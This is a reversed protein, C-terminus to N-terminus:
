SGGYRSPDVPFAPEPYDNFQRDGDLFRRMRAVQSSLYMVIIQMEVPLQLALIEECTRLAQTRTSVFMQGQFGLDKLHDIMEGFESCWGLVGLQGYQKFRSYLVNPAVRLAYEFSENQMIVQPPPEYHRAPTAPMSPTQPPPRPPANQFWQHGEYNAEGGFDIVDTQKGTYDMTTKEVPIGVEDFLNYLSLAVDIPLASLDPADNTFTVDPILLTPCLHDSRHVVTSPPRLLITPPSPYDSIPTPISEEAPSEPQDPPRTHPKTTTSSTSCINEKDSGSSPPISHFHISSASAPSGILTHESLNEIRNLVEPQYHNPHPLIVPPPIPIPALSIPTPLDPDQVLSPHLNRSFWSPSPPIFSTRTSTNISDYLLPSATLNVPDVLEVTLRTPQIRPSIPRNSELHSVTVLLRKLQSASSNKGSIESLPSTLINRALSTIRGLSTGSSTPRSRSPHISASSQRTSPPTPLHTPPPPFQHIIRSNIGVDTRSRFLVPIRPRKGDFASSRSSSRLRTFLSRSRQPGPGRPPTQISASPSSFQSDDAVLRPTASTNSASSESLLDLEIPSDTRTIQVFDDDLALSESIRLDSFQSDDLYDFAPQTSVSSSHLSSGIGRFRSQLLVSPYLV